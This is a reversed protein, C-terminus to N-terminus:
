MYHINYDVPSSVYPIDIFEIIAVINAALEGEPMSADMLAAVVYGVPRDFPPSQEKYSPPKSTHASSRISRSVGPTSTM